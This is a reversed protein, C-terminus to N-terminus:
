SKIKETLYKATVPGITRLTKGEPFSGFFKLFADVTSPSTFFIEQYSSGDPLPGPLNPLTDYLIVENFHYNKLVLYERLVARSLSSHPWFFCPDKLDAEELLAIIGDATEVEPVITAFVGLTALAEATKEGVAILCKNELAEYSIKLHTLAEFFLYVSPKSTFIVHTAQFLPSFLNKLEEARFNNPLITILPFHLFKTKLDDQPTTLGVALTKKRVDITEFIKEIEHDDERALIALQGQGLTTEGPLTIRELHTLKLRILAAEAVVVGDAEGNELKKLREGITGRLDIFELDARLNRVTEERRESSTAIKAKPPLTSLSEGKRFILSDAPDVGQTVAVIKLGKPIPSPLDKASHIGIRCEGSLVLEDIEKTFFDTKDLTRLSTKKDKDGVTEVFLCSFRLHPFIRQIEAQVEEAQVRSLPSSRAGVSILTEEVSSPILQKNSM